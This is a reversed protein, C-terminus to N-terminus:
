QKQGKAAPASVPQDGVPVSTHAGQAILEKKLLEAQGVPMTFIAGHLGSDADRYKLTVTELKTRFLSLFRGSGYPAAMMTLDGFTGHIVRQSDNGTVVDEISTAAVDAKVQEHSFHLNSGQVVLVGKTNNKVGPLGTIQVVKVGADAPTVPPATQQAGSPLAVFGALALAALWAWRVRLLSM